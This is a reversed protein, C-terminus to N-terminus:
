IFYIVLGVIVYAVTALAIVTPILMVLLINRRIKAKKSENKAKKLCVFFPLLVVAFVAMGILYSFGGLDSLLLGVSILGAIIEIILLINFSSKNM